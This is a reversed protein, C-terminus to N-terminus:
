PADSETAIDRLADLVKASVRGAQQDSVLAYIYAVDSRWRGHAKIERMSAGSAAAASAGGRRLSHLSLRDRREASVGAAELTEDLTNRMTGESLGHPPHKARVEAFVHTQGPRSLARLKLLLKIPDDELLSSGSGATIRVLQGKAAPDTKSEVLWLTAYVLRGGPRADIGMEQIARGVQWGLHVHEWALNMAEGPRLMGVFSLLLCTWNRLRRHSRESGDEVWGQMLERRILAMDDLTLPDKREGPADAMRKVGQALKRLEQEPPVVIGKIQKMISMDDLITQEAFGEMVRHVVYLDFFGKDTIKVGAGKAFKEISNKVSAHKRQTSPAYRADKLRQVDVATPVRGGELGAAARRKAKDLRPRRSSVYTLPVDQAQAQTKVAQPPKAGTGEEATAQDRGAGPARRAGHTGKFFLHCDPCFWDGSPVVALKICRQHYADNCGDCALMVNGKVSELGGCSVCPVDLPLGGDQLRKGGKM